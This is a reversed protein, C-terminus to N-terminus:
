ATAGVLARDDKKIKGPKAEAPTAGFQSLWSLVEELELFRGNKTANDAFTRLRDGAEYTVVRCTDDDGIFDLAIEAVIKQGYPQERLRVQLQCAEGTQKLVITITGRQLMLESASLRGVHTNAQGIEPLRQILRILHDVSETDKAAPWFRDAVEGSQISRFGTIALAGVLLRQFAQGPKM